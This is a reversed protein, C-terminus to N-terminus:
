ELNQSSNDAEFDCGYRVEDDQSLILLLVPAIMYISTTAAAVIGSDNVILGVVAGVLIGSFGQFLRPYDSKIRSMAGVPRYILIVLAALMALFVKSWVTYRMLKFNMSAKRTIITLAERWGGALVQNAARGIHSQLEPPRNLDFAALGLVAVGVLSVMIVVNRLSVRIDSMLMLTVLFAAPATLVGDTNAGLGPASILLAQVALFIGIGWLVLKKPWMQYVVSCVLISCGIIIGMYENGVGYYRAGAMPDYGLVSSKIM